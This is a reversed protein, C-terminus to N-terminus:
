PIALNKDIQSKVGNLLKWEGDTMPYPGAFEVNEGRKGKMRCAYAQHQKLYYFILYDRGGNSAEALFDPLGKKQIFIQLDESQQVRIKLKRYGTTEPSERVLMM